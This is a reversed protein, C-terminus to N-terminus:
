KKEKPAAVSHNVEEGGMKDDRRSIIAIVSFWLSFIIMKYQISCVACVFPMIHSHACSHTGSTCAELRPGQSATDSGAHSAERRRAISHLVDRRVLLMTSLGKMELGGDGLHLHPSPHQPPLWSNM